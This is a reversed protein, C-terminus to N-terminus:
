ADVPGRFVLSFVVVYIGVQILPHLLAWLFGLAQGAHGQVLYRKTMAWTLERHRLFLLVLERLNRMLVYTQM